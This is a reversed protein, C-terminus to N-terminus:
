LFLMQCPLLAMTRYIKGDSDVTFAHKSILADIIGKARDYGLGNFRTTVKNILEKYTPSFTQPQPMDQGDASVTITIEKPSVALNLEQFIVGNIVADILEEPCGNSRAAAMLMDVPAHDPHTKIFLEVNDFYQSPNKM